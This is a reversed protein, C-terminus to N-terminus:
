RAAIEAQYVSAEDHYYPGNGDPDQDPSADWIRATGLADHYAYCLQAKTM